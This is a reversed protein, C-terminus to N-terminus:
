IINNGADDAAFQVLDREVPSPLIEFVEAFRWIGVATRM